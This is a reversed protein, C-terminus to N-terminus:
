YGALSCKGRSFDGRIRADKRRKRRIERSRRRFRVPPFKNPYRSGPAVRALWNTPYSLLTIEICLPLRLSSISFASCCSHCVAPRHSGIFIIGRIRNFLCARLSEHEYALGITCSCPPDIHPASSRTTSNTLSLLHISLMM